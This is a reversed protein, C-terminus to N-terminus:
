NISIIENENAEGRRNEWENPIITIHSLYKGTPKLVAQGKRDYPPRIDKHGHHLVQIVEGTYGNKLKITQGIEFVNEM